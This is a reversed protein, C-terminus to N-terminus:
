EMLPPDRLNSNIQDSLAESAARVAALRQQEDAHDLLTRQFADNAVEYRARERATLAAAHRRLLEAREAVTAASEEESHVERDSIERVFTFGREGSAIPVYRVTVIAISGDSGASTSVSWSTYPEIGALWQRRRENVDRNRRGDLAEASVEAVHVWGWHTAVLALGVVLAIIAGLGLGGGFAEVAGLVILALGTVLTVGTLTAGVAVIRGRVPSPLPAEPTGFAEPLQDLDEALLREDPDRGVM